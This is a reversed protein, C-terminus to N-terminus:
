DLEAIGEDRLREVAALIQKRRQDRDPIVFVGDGSEYRLTDDLFVRLGGLGKLDFQRWRQDM